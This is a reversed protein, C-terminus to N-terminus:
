RSVTVFLPNSYFWLDAHAKDATNPAMLDDNVPNGQADTEGPVGCALNTGRLRFYMDHRIEPLRYVIVQWGEGDPRWDRGTFTKIVRTSDNSDKAYDPNPTIGDALYKGAKAKVEGAILDLHDVNAMAGHNNQAPTRFRITLELAGYRRIALGGGMWVRHRGSRASFELGNVLDGLVVFSNGSRLGELWEAMAYSGDHDADQVYTYNKAFEGPWFDYDPAHFDSNVFTFFRRGEGLLADWVGGVKALMPDAGGYTQAQATIDKGAADQFPGRDYGGRIAAKQHGPIGEFGFAVTPAADNFDRIAVSPYRLQRSPHNILFYSHAPYHEALWRVGAVAKDHNNATDKGRVGLLTDATVCSDDADFLYEHRAIARGGDEAPGIIGVSAHEHTPVNWEYGQIILKDPHTVRAATVMPYSYQWLSQWRWMKALPPSGLFVTDAPWPLGQPTRGFAGGHESNALWDLGFRFAQRLVEGAEIGGDTLLTHNHFDGALWRGSAPMEDQRAQCSALLLLLLVGAGRVTKQQMRWLAPHLGTGSQVEKSKRKPAPETDVTASHIM